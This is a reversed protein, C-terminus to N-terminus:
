TPSSLDKTNSQRVAYQVSARRWKIGAQKWKRRRVGGARETFRLLQNKGSYVGAFINLEEEKLNGEREAGVFISSSVAADSSFFVACGRRSDFGPDQSSLSPFKILFKGVLALKRNKKKREASRQFVRGACNCFM